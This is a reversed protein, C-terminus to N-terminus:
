PRTSRTREARRRASYRAVLASHDGEVPVSRPPPADGLRLYADSRAATFGHDRGVVVYSRDKHALVALQARPHLEREAGTQQRVEPDVVAPPAADSRAARSRTQRHHRWIQVVLVVAGVAALFWFGEILLTFLLKLLLYLGILAVAMFTLAAKLWKM